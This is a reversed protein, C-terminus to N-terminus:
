STLMINRFTIFISHVTIITYTSVILIQLAKALSGVEHRVLFEVDYNVKGQTPQDTFCSM